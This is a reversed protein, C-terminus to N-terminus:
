FPIDDEGPQWDPVKERSNGPSGLLTIDRARVELKSRQKGTEEDTWQNEILRGVVHVAQGKKLYPTLAEATKKWINVRIWITKEKPEGNSDKYRENIAINFSAVPTGDTTHRLEADAGLNGAIIVVNIGKKM